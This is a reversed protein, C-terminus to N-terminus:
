PRDLLELAAVFTAEVGATVSPEPEIRFFPSHHSPLPVEGRMASRLVSEPTGGVSFYVGPVREPTQVFESFDEAGMGSRPRSYMRERGFYDAWVSRLRATATRDNVTTPTSEFGTIVEPLRDEPLGNARGINKAVREIGALLRARTGESDSRVTLQLRAEDSIINHKFGAHFSGVTVVGPELPSLERSVLGQLAIVIQSGIYIPDKGRHPSAGHAGVGHVIIDVSDSSSMILGPAVAISGAPGDSSVHFGIAHDPVGFREYLGDDLMARAGSIREEAPQGVLLVRGRWRDRHDM